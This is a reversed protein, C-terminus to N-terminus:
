KKDGDVGTKEKAIAVINKFYGTLPADIKVGNEAISVLEMVALAIATGDGAFKIDPIVLAIAYVAALTLLYYIKKLLGHFGIRSSLEKKIIAAIIGTIYDIAMLFILVVVALGLGDILYSIIAGITGTILAIKQEINM